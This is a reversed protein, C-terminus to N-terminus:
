KRGSRALERTLCADFALSISSQGTTGYGYRWRGTAPNCTGGAEIACRAQISTCKGAATAAPVTGVLLPGSVAIVAVITKLM